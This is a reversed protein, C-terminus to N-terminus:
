YTRGAAVAVLERRQQPVLVAARQIAAMRLQSLEHTLLAQYDAQTLAELQSGKARGLAEAATEWCDEVGAAAMLAARFSDADQLEWRGADYELALYRSLFSGPNPSALVDLSGSEAWEAEIWPDPNVGRWDRHGRGMETQAGESLRWADAAFLGSGSEPVYYGPGRETSIILDGEDGQFLTYTRM